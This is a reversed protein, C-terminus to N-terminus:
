EVRAGETVKLAGAVVISDGASLGSLIEVQEGTQRGVKVIRMHAINKSDVAWVSTLAGREVIAKKPVIIGNATSGLALTARGFMGSKLGKQTLMIKAVFTRSSPDATPVIEAIKATFSSGVADLTVQVPTGTKVKPAVTEPLSLELQYSGEDEITLIPQGPFVTAGLDVQKSAIVGSIPALIRTYDSVATAARAGQQAQALRSEARAVGQSAVDKETQRVDFEQRSVAQEALLSQYRVFTTEALKKRSLAEDLGRRAEDVAATAVAATAQNEQADLQALLQGKKVRDGERVRLVSISGPIRTSVAASTRARVSGVVDLVDPVAALKVVELTVGNVVVAPTNEAQSSEHNKSCGSLPLVVTLLMAVCLRYNMM